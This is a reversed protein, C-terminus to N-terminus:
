HFVSNAVVLEGNPLAVLNWILNFEDHADFSLKVKGNMDSIVIRGCYSASAIDGNPLAAVGCVFSSHHAM